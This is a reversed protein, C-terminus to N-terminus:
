KRAGEGAIAFIIRAAQWVDEPTFRVLDMTLKFSGTGFLNHNPKSTSYDKAFYERQEIDTLKPSTIANAQVFLNVKTKLDPELGLLLGRSTKYREMHVNHGDETPSLDPHASILERIAQKLEDNTM